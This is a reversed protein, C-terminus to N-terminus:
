SGCSFYAQEFNVVLWERATMRDTCRGVRVRSTRSLVGRRANDQVVLLRQKSARGPLLQRSRHLSEWETWLGADRTLAAQARSIGSYKDASCRSARSLVGRTSAEGIHGGRLGSDVM